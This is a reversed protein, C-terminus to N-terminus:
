QGACRELEDILQIMPGGHSGMFRSAHWAVLDYGNMDPYDPHSGKPEGRRAVWFPVAHTFLGFVGGVYVKDATVREGRETRNMGSPDRGANVFHGELKILQVIVHDHQGYNVQRFPSIVDELGRDHWPSIRDFFEVIRYLPEPQSAAGRLFERLQRLEPMIARLKKRPDALLQLVPTNLLVFIRSKVMDTEEAAELPM